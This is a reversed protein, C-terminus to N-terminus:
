DHQEKNLDYNGVTKGNENMVYLRGSAYHYKTVGDPAPAVVTNTKSDYQVSLVALTSEMGDSEVHKITYM